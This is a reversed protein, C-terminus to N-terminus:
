FINVMFFVCVCVGSKILDEFMLYPTIDGSRSNVKALKVTAEKL